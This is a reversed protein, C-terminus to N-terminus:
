LLWSSNQKLRYLRHIVNYLFQPNQPYMFDEFQRLFMEEGLYVNLFANNFEFQMEYLGRAHTHAPLVSISALKAALAFRENFDVGVRKHFENAMLIAKNKEATVNAKLMDKLVVKCDVVDQKKTPIPVFKWTSLEQLDCIEEQMDEKKVDNQEDM